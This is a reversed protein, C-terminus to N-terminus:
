SRITAQLISARQALSASGFAFSPGTSSRYRSAHKGSSAPGVPSFSEIPNSTRCHHRAELAPNPHWAPRCNPPTKPPTLHHLRPWAFAYRMAAVGNPNILTPPHHGLTPAPAWGQAKPWFGTPIQLCRAPGCGAPHAGADLEASPQRRRGAVIGLRSAQAPTSARTQLQCPLCPSAGFSRRAIMAACRWLIVGAPAGCGYLERWAWYEWGALRLKFGPKDITSIRGSHSQVNWTSSRYRNARQGFSGARVPSFIKNQNPM